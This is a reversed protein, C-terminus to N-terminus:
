WDINREENKVKRRTFFLPITSQRFRLIAPVIVVLFMGFYTASVQGVAM